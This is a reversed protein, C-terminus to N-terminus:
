LDFVKTPDRAYRARQEFYARIQDENSLMFACIKLLCPRLRGRRMRSGRAAVVRAKARRTRVFRDLRPDIVLLQTSWAKVVEISERTFERTVKLYNQAGGWL